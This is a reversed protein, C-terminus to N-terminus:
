YRILPKIAEKLSLALSARLPPLRPLEAIQTKQQRWETAPCNLQWSLWCPLAIEPM